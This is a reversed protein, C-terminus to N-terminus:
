LQEISEDFGVGAVRPFTKEALEAVVNPRILFLEFPQDRLEANLFARHAFRARPDGFFDRPRLDIEFRVRFRVESQKEGQFREHESDRPFAREPAGQSSSRTRHRFQRPQIIGSEFLARDVLTLSDFRTPEFDGSCNEFSVSRASNGSNTRSNFSCAM